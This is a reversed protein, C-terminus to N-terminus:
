KGTYASRTERKGDVIIEIATKSGKSLTITRVLYYAGGANRLSAGDVETASMARTWTTEKGNVMIQVKGAGIVNKVYVKVQNDEKLSTWGSLETVDVVTGVVISASGVVNTAALGASGTPRYTVTAVFTGSDNSGMLVNFNVMGSADTETPFTGVILGPGSYTVVIDAAAAAVSTDVANGFKDAVVASIQLTRGAEVSAPATITVKSGADAAAAAVFVDETATGSGSTVVVTHKGAVTSLVMVDGYAGSADTKITTSGLSYHAKAATTANTVFM